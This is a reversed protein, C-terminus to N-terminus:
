YIGIREPLPDATQAIRDCNKKLMRMKIDLYEPDEWLNYHENPDKELDYLEGIDESHFVIIKYREDRVMTCYNKQKSPNSNYYECYVNDRFGEFKEEGILCPWLSKAQIGKHQPVRAIDLVTPALDGLEVLSSVRRGQEIVGPYSIIMPVHVAEEYLFSSKIYLGHDGLMEGHDSMYIIITNEKQGTQELVDFLRGLQYDIHDVMAYYAAKILKRDYDTMKTYNYRHKQQYIKQYSPKNDLEGEIYHPEPLDDLIDMYRELFEKPPDIPFHPDFINVSFLWPYPADRHDKMFGIAKDVCFTTQHYEKDMGDKVFSCDDRDKVSYDVGKEILWRQYMNSHTKHEPAHSWYFEDYGDNIRPETGRFFLEHNEEVLGQEKLEIRNDCASLHLKGSLGCVYGSDHLLRTVLIENENIDQGNQRLKNTIPYRGTLFNGRSPTCLPNQSFANEFLVGEKALRDLNPTKVFKNGYCGLTDWRQSDSCIWLINPRREQRQYEMVSPMKYNNM